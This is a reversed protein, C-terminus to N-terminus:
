FGGERQWSQEKIRARNSNIEEARDKTKGPRKSQAEM